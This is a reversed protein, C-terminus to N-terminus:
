RVEGIKDEDSQSMQENAFLVRDVLSSWDMFGYGVTSVTNTDPEVIFTAPVVEVNLKSKLYDSKKPYPFIESGMGDLSVPIVTFGYKESFNKLIPSFRQCYPCDSKFFYVIGKTHSLNQLALEKQSLSQQNYALIAQSQNPRGTISYDYQPSVWLTKKFTDSFSHSQKMVKQTVDLYALINQKSPHVVADQYAQQYAKQQQEIIDQSSYGKELLSQSDFPDIKTDIIGTDISQSQKQLNDLTAEKIAAVEEPDEYWYWGRERDEYFGDKAESASVSPMLMMLILLQYYLARNM